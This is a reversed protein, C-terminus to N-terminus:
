RYRSSVSKSPRNSVPALELSSSSVPSKDPSSSADLQSPSSITAPDLFSADDSAGSERPEDCEAEADFTRESLSLDLEANPKGAVCPDTAAAESILLKLHVNELRVVELNKRLEQLESAFDLGAGEIVSLRAPSGESAIDTAGSTQVERMSPSDQGVLQAIAAELKQIKSMMGIVTASDVKLGADDFGVQEPPLTDDAASVSRVNRLRELKQVAMRTGDSILKQVAPLSVPSSPSYGLRGGFLPLSQTTESEGKEDAGTPRGTNVFLGARRRVGSTTLTMVEPTGGVSEFAPPPAPVQATSGRLRRESQVLKDFTALTILGRRLNSKAEQIPGSGDESADCIAAYCTSVLASAEIM